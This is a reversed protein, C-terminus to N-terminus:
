LCMWDIDEESDEEDSDDMQDFDHSYLIKESFNGVAYQFSRVTVDLEEESFTEQRSAKDKMQAIRM